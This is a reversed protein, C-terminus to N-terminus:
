ISLGMDSHGGGSIYTDLPNTPSVKWDAWGAGGVEYHVDAIPTKENSSTGPAIPLWRHHDSPVYGTLNWDEPGDWYPLQSKRWTTTPAYKNSNNLEPLYPHIAGLHYHIWAFAFQVVLNASVIIFEPHEVKRKVISRITSDEIYLQRGNAPRRSLLCSCM